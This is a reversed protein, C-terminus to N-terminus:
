AARVGRESIEVLVETVRGDEGTAPLHAPGPLAEELIVVPSSGKLMRELASVLYWNEFDVYVPKRAKERVWGDWRVGGDGGDGGDQLGKPWVRAFCHRPVESSRRWESLRLLHDADTDGARQVPFRTLPVVWRARQLVVRGVEIRPFAVTEGPVSPSSDPALMFVSPHMYYTPGFAHTLFRAAPPLLIDAMMGLHLPVVEASHSGSVLRVLDSDPDHVATLDGVGIRRARPRDSTTFPYDIEFPASPSRMNPSSFFGGSLEALLPGDDREDREDREDWRGPEPATGGAREVLYRLRSRGRGYGAHAVNLVLHLADRRQFAQVYCGISGISPVWSPYDGALDALSAPPVRVVGDEDPPLLVAARAEARIRSLEALRPVSGSSPGTGPTLPPAKLIRAMEAAVASRAASGDRGLEEHLARQLHILPVASGAGFTERFYRGLVVRLSLGPNVAALWRRVTDLDELAPRWLTASCTASVDTHVANEHLLSAESRGSTLSPLGVGGALDEITRHLRERRRRHAAVDEVAPARRLEDRARELLPVVEPLVGSNAQGLWARLDGLPDQAHDAVPLEWELVGKDALGLVFREVRDRGAAHGAALRDCLEGLRPAPGSRVIRLCEMIAPVAPLTVISEGPPRSLFVIQRDDAVLSPNVRLTLLTRMEPQSCVARIINQLVAGDIELVTGVPATKLLRVAPGDHAQEAPGGGTWRGIGSITFTSYPSTKAAARAAYKALRVAVQRRPRPTTGTLWKELEGYLSPSAQSLARRFRPHGTVDRLVELTSRMEDDFAGPLMTLAHDHDALVDIWAGARRRLGPPLVARVPESWEGSQPRRVRHLARRLGILRPRLAADDLEGIVDFLSRSLSEGEAALWERADLLEDIRKVSEHFRLGDLDRISLGATRVVPPAVAAGSSLVFRESM